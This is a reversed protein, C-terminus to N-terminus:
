LAKFEGKIRWFPKNYVMGGDDEWRMFDQLPDYKYTADKVIRRKADLLTQKNLVKGQKRYAEAVAAIMKMRRESTPPNANGKMRNCIAHAPARNALINRGGVSVPVVHDITGFLHHQYSVIWNPIPLLCLHCQGPNGIFSRSKSRGKKAM